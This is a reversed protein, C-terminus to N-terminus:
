RSTLFVKNQVENSLDLFLAGSHETNEYNLKLSQPYIARRNNDFHRDNNLSILDDTCRCTLSCKMAFNYNERCM